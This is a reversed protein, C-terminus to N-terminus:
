RQIPRVEYLPSEPRHDTDLIAQAIFARLTTQGSGRGRFQFVKGFNILKVALDITEQQAHTPTLTSLEPATYESM